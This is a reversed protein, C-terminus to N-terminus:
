ISRQIAAEERSRRAIFGNRTEDFQAFGLQVLAARIPSTLSSGVVELETYPARTSYPGHHLDITELVALFQDEAAMSPDLNMSTIGILHDPVPHAARLSRVIPANEASSAIWVPQGPWVERLRDGYDPDLIVLLRTSHASPVTM